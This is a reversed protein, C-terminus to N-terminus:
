ATMVRSQSESKMTRAQANDIVRSQAQATIIRSAPTVFAAMAAAATQWWAAIPALGIPSQGIM